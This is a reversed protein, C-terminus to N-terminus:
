EILGALHLGDCLRGAALAASGLSEVEPHSQQRSLYAISTVQWETVADDAHRASSLTVKIVEIVEIVPLVLAQM